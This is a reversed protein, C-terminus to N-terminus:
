QSCCSFHLPIPCARSHRVWGRVRCVWLPSPTHCPSPPSGQFARATSLPIIVPMRYARVATRLAGGIGFGRYPALVGFMAVYAKAKGNPQLCTPRCRCVLAPAPACAAGALADTLTSLPPM